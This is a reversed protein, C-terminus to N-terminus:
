EVKSEKVQKTYLEMFIDMLDIDADSYPKYMDTIGIYQRAADHYVEFEYFYKSELYALALEYPTFM